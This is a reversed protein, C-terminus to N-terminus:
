IYDSSEEIGDFVSACKTSCNIYIYKQRWLHRKRAYAQNLMTFLNVWPWYLAMSPRLRRHLSVLYRSRSGNVSRGSKRLNSILTLKKAISKFCSHSVEGWFIRSMSKHTIRNIFTRIPRVNLEIAYSPQFRRSYVRYLGVDCVFFLQYLFKDHANTRPM